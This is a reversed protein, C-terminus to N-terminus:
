CSHAHFSPPCPHRRRVAAVDAKVSVSRRMSPNRPHDYLGLVISVCTSVQETHGARDTTM